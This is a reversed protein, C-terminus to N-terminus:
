LITDRFKSPYCGTNRYIYNSFTPISDFGLDFAINKISERSGLLRRKAELVVRADIVEKATRGTEKKTLINLYNPTVALRDAYFKVTKAELFYDEILQDFKSIIEPKGNKSAEELVHDQMMEYIHNIILQGRLKIIRSSVKANEVEEKFLLFERRLYLAQETTINIVPNTNIHRSSFATEFLYTEIFEKSVILKHGISSETTWSHIQGPFSIHIQNDTEKYEVFDVSHVGKSKEFFIFVYSDPSRFNSISSSGALPVYFITDKIQDERDLDKKIYLDM